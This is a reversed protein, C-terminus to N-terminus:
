REKNKSREPIDEHMADEIKPADREVLECIHIEKRANRIEANIDSLKTYVDAKEVKLASVDKGELLKKADLYVKYENEDVAAGEDYLKGMDAFYELRSLADYYRKRRKKKQNLIIRQKTLGDILTSLLEKKDALQEPTDIKNAELYDAQQKYQEFRRLEGRSVKPYPTIGGKGIIGLVYMWSVYLARFGKQKGYPIFVPREKPVLVIPKDENFGKEIYDRIDDETLSKGDIKARYHGTSGHPVFAPYKSHHEITYGRDEMIEYFNGIDLAFALAEQLDAEFLERFTLLGAKKIKWEAYTLGKQSPNIIVSLGYEKCLEDSIRRIQKYYSAPSSHYKLGTEDSVSNFTIHNHILVSDAAALANVTLINLSPQCDIIIYDYNMRVADIYQKLMAERGYENVLSAEYGSLQINSPMLDIGEETTLIGEAPDINDERVAKMLVDSITYDMEDPNQFGLAMTLNAQADLDILLVSNGERVLGAGLNVATSTKGVGGKQNAIAIVKTM